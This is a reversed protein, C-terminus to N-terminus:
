QVIRLSVTLSTIVPIHEKWDKTTPDGTLQVSLFFPTRAPPATQYRQFEQFTLPVVAQDMVAQQSVAQIRQVVYSQAGQTRMDVYSCAGDRLLEGALEYRIDFNLIKDKVASQDSFRVDSVSVSVLREPMDIPAPPLIIPIFLPLPNRGRHDPAANAETRIQANIQALFEESIPDETTNSFVFSQIYPVAGIAREAEYAEFASKTGDAIARLAATHKARENNLYQETADKVSLGGDPSYLGSRIYATMEEPFQFVDEPLEPLKGTEFYLSRRVLIADTYLREIEQRWLSVATLKWRMIDRDNEDKTSLLDAETASADAQDGMLAALKKQLDSIQDTLKAQVQRHDAVSALLSRLADDGAELSTMSVDTPKPLDQLSDFLAKLKGAFESASQAEKKAAGARDLPKDSPKEPPPPNGAFVKRAVEFDKTQQEWAAQAAKANAYFAAGKQAVTSLTEISGTPVGVNHGYVLSGTVNIATAVIPGAPGPILMAGISLITTAGKIKAADGAQQKLDELQKALTARRQDIQTQIGAIDEENQALATLADGMQDRASVNEKEDAMLRSRVAAIGAEDLPKQDFAKLILAQLVNLQTTANKIEGELDGLANSFDRRPVFAPGHGSPDLNLDMLNKTSDLLAIAAAADLDAFFSRYSAILSAITGPNATVKNIPNFPDRAFFKQIKFATFQPWVADGRLNAFIDPLAESGVKVDWEAPPKALGGEYEASRRWLTAPGEDAAVLVGNVSVSSSRIYISRKSSPSTTFQLPVPLANDFSITRAVIKLGDPVASAPDTLYVAAKPGFVIKDALLVITATTFSLPANLHIERADFTIQRVNSPAKDVDRIISGFDAPSFNIVDGTVRIEKGGTVPKDVLEYNTDEGWSQFKMSPPRLPPCTATTGQAFSSVIDATAFFCVALTLAQGTRSWRALSPFRNSQGLRWTPPCQAVAVM